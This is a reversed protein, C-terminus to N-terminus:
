LPLATFSKQTNPTKSFIHRGAFHVQLRAATLLAPCWSWAGCKAATICWTCPACAAPLRRTQAAGMASPM